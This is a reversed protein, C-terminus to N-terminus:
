AELSVEVVESVEFEIIRPAGALLGDRSQDFGLQAQRVTVHISTTKSTQQNILLGSAEFPGAPVHRVARVEMKM